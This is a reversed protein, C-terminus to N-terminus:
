FCIVMINFYQIPVINIFRRFSDLLNQFFLLRIDNTKGDQVRVAPAAYLNGLNGLLKIWLDLGHKAPNSGGKQPFMEQGM